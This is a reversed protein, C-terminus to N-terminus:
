PAATCASAAQSEAWSLIEDLLGQSAKSLAAVGGAADNSTAPSSNQFARSAIAQRSSLQQLSANIQVLGRSSTPSDFVHDFSQLSLTLVCGNSTAAPAQRNRLQQTLLEAPPATWRSDAYYAVEQANQYALRYRIRRTNLADGSQINAIRTRTAIGEDSPASIGFDFTQPGSQPKNSNISLCASLSGALLLLPIWRQM